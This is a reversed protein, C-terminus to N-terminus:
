LHSIYTCFETNSFHHVLLLSDWQPGAFYVTIMEKCCPCLLFRSQCPEECSPPGCAQSELQPFWDSTDEGHSTEIRCPSHTITAPRISQAVRDADISGCAVVAFVLAKHNAGLSHWYPQPLTLNQPQGQNRCPESNQPTKERLQDIAADLKQGPVTRLQQQSCWGSVVVLNTDTRM